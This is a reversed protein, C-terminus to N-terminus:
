KKPKRELEALLKKYDDRRQLPRFTEKRVAEADKFANAKGKEAQNM